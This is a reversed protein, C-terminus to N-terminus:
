CCRIIKADVGCRLVQEDAEYEHVARLEVRLLWMAPNFWQLCGLLDVLLLDWSHGL